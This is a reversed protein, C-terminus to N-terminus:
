IIGEMTAHLQYLNRLGHVYANLFLTKTHSAMNSLEELGSRLEEKLIAQYSEAGQPHLLIENTVDKEDIERKFTHIINGIRGLRQGKILFERVKGMEHLDFDPSAMLDIMGAAVMGMNYPGNVKSETLNRMYPHATIVESYQNALFFQKIDFILLDTISKSNPFTSIAQELEQFLDYALFYISLQRQSLSLPIPLKEGINLRYLHKLLGPNYFAPNDALDDYLTILMGLCVKAYVVDDMLHPAVTSLTTQQYGKVLFDTFLRRDRHQFIREYKKALTEVTIM